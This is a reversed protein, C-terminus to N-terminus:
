WEEGWLDPNTIFFDLKLASVLVDPPVLKGYRRHECGKPLRVRTTDGKNVKNIARVAPAVMEPPNPPLFNGLLHGTVASELTSIGSAVAEAYGAAVVSGM